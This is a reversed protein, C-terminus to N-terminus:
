NNLAPLLSLKTDIAPYTAPIIFYISDGDHM